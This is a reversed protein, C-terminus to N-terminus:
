AEESNDYSDSGLVSYEDDEYEYGIFSQISTLTTESLAKYGELSAHESEVDSISDVMLHKHVHNVIRKLLGAEAMKKVAAKLLPTYFEEGKLSILRVVNVDQPIIDKSTYITRTTPDIKCKYSASASASQLKVAYLSNEEIAKATRCDIFKDTTERVADKGKKSSSSSSMQLEKCAEPTNARLLHVLGGQEAVVEQAVPLTNPEELYHDREIKVDSVSVAVM